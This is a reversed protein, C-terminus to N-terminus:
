SLKVEPGFTIERRNKANAFYARRKSAKTLRPVEIERGNGNSYGHARDAAFRLEGVRKCLLKTNDKICDPAPPPFPPLPANQSSLEQHVFHPM